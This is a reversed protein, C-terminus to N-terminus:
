GGYSLARATFGARCGIPELEYSACMGCLSCHEYDEFDGTLGLQALHSKKTKKPGSKSKKNAPKQVKKNADALFADMGEDDILKVGVDNDEYLINRAMDYILTHVTLSKNWIMFVYFMDKELQDLIQQRHKDDVGSPSVGMNVHSHGQMRIQNFTNDDQKYLWKTYAAQDTNVTSGTVEQPYVFIDEIIFENDGMRTVTGHWGVESAFNMVLAVIKRYAEQTLWVVASCDKYEWSQSYRLKGDSMKVNDLMASFDKVAKQKIEETLVIPRPM